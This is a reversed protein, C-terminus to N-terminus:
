RAIHAYDTIKSGSLDVVFAQLVGANYNSGPNFVYTRGIKALGTGEHVHGAFDVLPQRNEIFTRVSRSGVHILKTPNEPDLCEDLNGCDKPPVHVNLLLKDATVAQDALHILRSLLEHEELERHTDFGTINSYGLSILQYGECMEIVKNEAYRFSEQDAAAMKELVAQDDDNGGTWYCEVGTPLSEQAAKAWNCLRDCIKSNWLENLYETNENLRLLESDDAFHWYYGKAELRQLFYDIEQERVKVELPSDLNTKGTDDKQLLPEYITASGDDERRVRILRKGSLDGGVLLVDADLDNTLRLLKRFVLTSGHLDTAFLIRM